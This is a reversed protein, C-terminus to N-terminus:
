IKNASNQSDLIEKVEFNGNDNLIVNAFPVKEMYKEDIKLFLHEWKKTGCKTDKFNYDIGINPTESLYIIM